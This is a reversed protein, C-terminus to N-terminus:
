WGIQLFCKLDFMNFIKDMIHLTNELTNVDYNQVITKSKEDDIIKNKTINNNTAYTTTDNNLDLNIENGPTDIFAGRYNNISNNDRKVDTISGGTAFNELEDLTLSILDMNSLYCYTVMSSFKEVTEYAFQRDLFKNIFMKKFKYDNDKKEMRINNFINETLINDVKDDYEMIRHMFSFENNFYTLQHNNVFENEGSNLLESKIYRHLTTTILM